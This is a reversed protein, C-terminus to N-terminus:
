RRFPAYPYFRPYYGFNLFFQEAAQQDQVEGEKPAAGEAPTAPAAPASTAVCALALLVMVVQFTEISIMKLRVFIGSKLAQNIVDTLTRSCWFLAKHTLHRANNKSKTNYLELLPFAALANASCTVHKVQSYSPKSLTISNKLQLLKHLSFYELIIM